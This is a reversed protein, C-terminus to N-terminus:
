NTSPEFGGPTVLFSLDLFDPSQSELIPSGPFFRLPAGLKGPVPAGFWVISHRHLNAGKGSGDRGYIRINRVCFVLGPENMRRVEM